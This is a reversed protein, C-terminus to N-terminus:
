AGYTYREGVYDLWGAWRGSRDNTRVWRAWEQHTFIEFRARGAFLGGWRNLDTLGAGDLCKPLSPNRRDYAATSVCFGYDPSAAIAEALAQQRFLQFGGRAAPCGSLAEFVSQVTVPRLIDWYKRDWEGLHCQAEPDDLVAAADLCRDPDLNGVGRESDEATRGSCDYFSEETFKSEVLVWGRGGGEVEVEFGVDPSTQHSGRSGHEGLLPLPHLAGTLEVELEVRLVRRVEPAIRERLFGALLDLDDRFPFYLNACVIWSSLLNHASTHKQIRNSALYAALSRSPDRLGSWLNEEWAKAPFLHPYTKKRYEGATQSSAHKRRWALQVEKMEDKFKSM